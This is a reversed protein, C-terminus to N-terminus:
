KKYSVKSNYPVLFERVPMIVYPEYFDLILKQKSKLRMKMITLGRIITSHVGGGPLAALNWIYM